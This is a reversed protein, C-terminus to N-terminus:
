FLRFYALSNQLLANNSKFQETLEEQRTVSAALRAIAAAEDPDPSTADRLQGILEYLVKVERVLPDYNRLMGVRTSLVDRQLASEVMAFRDLAMLARDFREADTNSARLSLWTLLMLALLVAAAAPMLKMTIGPGRF